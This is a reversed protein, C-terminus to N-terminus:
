GELPNHIFTVMVLVNVCFIILAWFLMPMYLDNEQRYSLEEIEVKEMSSIKDFITQLSRKDTSRFFQGGTIEAIRKLSGEDLDSKITQPGFATQQTFEPKGVGITYVKIKNRKALEAATIPDIQGRNSSGDTILIMIKSPTKSEKLRNIGVSIASGVATGEKPMIDPTIAKIQQKLLSYDLTLPAYSFADEAFVVMGIRDYSRGEIFDMATEKAVELRNPKFDQTEMSGSTDLILMIDVGESYKSEVQFGSIPRALAVIMLLLSAMNLMQPLPRLFTLRFKSPALKDPDYSLPVVLRRSDYWWYYWALYAPIALLLLLWGPSRFEDAAPWVLRLCWLIMAEFQELIFQIM